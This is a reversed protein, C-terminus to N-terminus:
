LDNLIKHKLLYVKFTTLEICIINWCIQWKDLTDQKGNQGTVASVKYVKRKRRTPYM